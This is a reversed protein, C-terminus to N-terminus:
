FRMLAYVCSFTLNQSRIRTSQLSAYVKSSVCGNPHPFVRVKQFGVRHVRSIYLKQFPTGTSACFCSPTALLPLYLASVYRAVNHFTSSYNAKGPCITSLTKKALVPPSPSPPPLRYACNRGCLTQSHQPTAFDSLFFQRTYCCRVM